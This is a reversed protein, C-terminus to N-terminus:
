ESELARAYFDDHKVIVEPDLKCEQSTSLLESIPKRPTVLLLRICPLVQTKNTGPKRVLYNNKPLAKEAIYPCISRFDTFPSKSGQNDAKSQLSYVYQQEKLKSAKAKKIMNRQTNTILKSKNTRVDQFIKETQKLGDEANQLKTTRIKQPRIVKKLDLVIYSVRGHFLRNHECGICTHYSTNYNLVAVNVYKLWM